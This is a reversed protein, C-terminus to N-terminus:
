GKRAAVKGLPSPKLPLPSACLTSAAAFLVCFGWSPGVSGGFLAAAFGDVSALSSGCAALSVLLAALLLLAFLKKM